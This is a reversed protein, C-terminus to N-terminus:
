REQGPAAPKAAATGETKAAVKKRLDPSLLDMETAPITTFDGHKKKLEEGFKSVDGVLLVLMQDPATRAKAFGQVDAATVADIRTRYSDLFEKGLGYFSADIVQGGIAEPTEIQLPFSGSLLTKASTLEADPVPQSQATRFVDLMLDLAEVTSETKTSTQARFRGPQLRETWGSSAGYSLGRKRRVEQYLRGSAGNGVVSNYVQAKFYDPDTYAIGVQGIRIETQVTGPMDIAVIRLKQGAPPVEFKTPAPAKDGKWGGLAREVRAFADAPKVDGVIALVSGQPVYQRRHFAILDDRTISGVSELTGSSPSGYPHRGFLAREFAEDALGRANSDRLQLGNLAQRRWRDIEADPFSPHLIVDALLDLGLDIQDTTVRLFASSTDAGPSANLSGGVQDIAAAIQQANRSTTGQTLLSATAESIGAKDAAEYLKGAPFLMQVSVLPLEHQEVVIVKLGNGLTKESYPPFQIPKAKQPLPPASPGAALAASASFALALVARLTRQPKV